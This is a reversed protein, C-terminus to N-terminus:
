RAAMDRLVRQINIGRPSNSVTIGNVTQTPIRAQGWVSDVTAVNFLGNWSVSFTGLQCISPDYQIPVFTVSDVPPNTLGQVDSCRAGHSVTSATFTGYGDAAVTDNAVIYASQTGALIQAVIANTVDHDSFAVLYFASDRPAGTSTTDSFNIVVGQWSTDTAANDVVLPSPAAGSAPAAILVSMMLCRGYYPSFYPPDEYAPSYAQACAQAYLSDLHLALSAPNGGNSPGSADGCGLAALVALTLARFRM